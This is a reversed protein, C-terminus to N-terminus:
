SHSGGSDNSLLTSVRVLSPLHRSQMHANCTVSPEDAFRHQQHQRAKLVRDRVVESSEGLQSSMMEEPKLRNVRVHLDIRDLLPGSLKAWYAIASHRRAPVNWWRIM